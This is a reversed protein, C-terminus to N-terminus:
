DLDELVTKGNTAFPFRLTLMHVLLIGLAWVDLKSFDDM